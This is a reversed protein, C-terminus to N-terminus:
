GRLDQFSECYYDKLLHGQRDYSGTVWTCRMTGNAYIIYEGCYSKCTDKDIGGSIAELEKDALECGSEEALERVEEPTMCTRAKEKLEPTLDEFGM